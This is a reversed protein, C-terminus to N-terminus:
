QTKKSLVLFRTYNNPNDAIEEKIVSVQNIESANKSAICAAILSGFSPTKNVFHTFHPL